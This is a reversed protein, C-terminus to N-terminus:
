GKLVRSKFFFYTVLLVNQKKLYNCLTKNFSNATDYNGMRRSNSKLEKLIKTDYTTSLQLDKCM